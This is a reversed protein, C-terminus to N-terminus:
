SIDIHLKADINCHYIITFLFFIVVKEFAFQLFICFLKFLRALWIFTVHFCRSRIFVSIGVSWQGADAVSATTSNKEALTSM